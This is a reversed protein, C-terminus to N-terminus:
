RVTCKDSGILNGRFHSLVTYTGPALSVPFVVNLDQGEEVSATLKKSYSAASIDIQFDASFMRGSKATLLNVVVYNRDCDIGRLAFDPQVFSYITYFSGIILFFIVLWPLVRNPQPEPPPYDSPQMWYYTPYYDPM